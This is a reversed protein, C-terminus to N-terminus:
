NNMCSEELVIGTAVLKNGERLEFEVGKALDDPAMPSLYELDSLTENENLIKRNFVFVSWFDKTKSLPKTIKIIPAYKDGFPMEKRGGQKEFLWYIRAKFRRNM